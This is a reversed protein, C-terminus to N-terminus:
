YDTGKLLGILKQYQNSKRMFDERNYHPLIGTVEAFRNMQETLPSFVYKEIETQIGNTSYFYISNVKMYIGFIICYAEVSSYNGYELKRHLKKYFDPTIESPHETITIKSKILAFLLSIDITLDDKRKYLFNSGAQIFGFLALFHANYEPVFDTPEIIPFFYFYQGAKSIKKFNLVSLVREVQYALTERCSTEWGFNVRISDPATDSTLTLFNEVPIEKSEKVVNEYRGPEPFKNGNFGLLKTKFYM